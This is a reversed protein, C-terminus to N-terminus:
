YGGGALVREVVQEQQEPTLALFAEALEPRQSIIREIMKASDPQGPFGQPTNRTPMGQPMAGMMLGQIAELDQPMGGGQVDQQEVMQQGALHQQTVKQIIEKVPPFKGKDVVYWFINEDILKAMYLEKAMEMYFLRDTPMSTSVRCKTDFEPSYVEYDKGEVLGGMMEVDLGEDGISMTNRFEKYPIVQNIDFIYVKLIDELAFMDYVTSSIGEEGLIRYARRFTYFKTILNNTYNGLDEYASIISREKSRLRVQARAALLDLARFATVSGPTRGQSIDFRGVLTEMVNQLRSMEGPLTQAVGAGPTERRIGNIDKVPFWMGPLTGLEMIMKQQKPSLAQEQYLTQGMAHHMHSEIIIEGTKNRIIQPSKLCHAEGFGWISNERPYCQRFIFPFKAEEGPDYYVYNAHKLYVSNGEGAWWIVHLGPGLDEEDEDLIMPHGKYWTEIVLAQEEGEEMTPVAYDDGILMDYNVSDPKVEDGHEPFQERIYELTRWIAKHVRRGDEISDRCRADPYVVQPHLAKWRIEGQWRNPGKGGKWTPDWYPHWIGTGYLFYWRLYKEREIEIRNKYAIFKKLDTMVRAAEEDGEEVPYDIIDIDQSFESVFGEILAFTINEVANPRARKQVPTRLVRGDAGKLDWHDGKYLKYLEEMEEMYFEKAARDAEFWNMCTRIAEDIMEQKRMSLTEPDASYALEETTASEQVFVPM